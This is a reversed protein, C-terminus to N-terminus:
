RTTAGDWTFPISMRTTTRWRDTTDAHRGIRPPGVVLQAVYKGAKPLSVNDGYHIGMGMGIMPYQPGSSVVKGAADTIRLTITADPLRDGTEADSLLLMVHANQDKRPAHKVLQDGEYVSFTVPESIDLEVSEGDKTATGLKKMQMTSAHSKQSAASPTTGGMDMGSMDHGAAHGGATTGSASVNSSTDDGCGALLAATAVTAAATCARRTM